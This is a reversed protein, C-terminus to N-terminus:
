LDSLGWFSDYIVSSGNMTFDIIEYNPNNKFISYGLGVKGFNNNIKFNIVELFTPFLDYFNMYDREFQMNDDIYFQNFIYRDKKKLNKMLLHDGLVILKTNKLNLKKFDEIFSSLYISSCKVTDKITYNNVNILDLREKLCERNPYGDPAHSDLTMITMFFKKNENKLNKLIDLSAQLLINDHIGGDWKKKNHYAQKSTEYGLDTLEKLGYFNTYNHTELFKNTLSNEVDDSSIFYNYYDNEHLIDTLCTLKPLFTNIGKLNIVDFFSNKIKLLPIGCQTSVLSSLTYGTSPVQYFYKISKAERFKFLDIILNEGFVKKDSLTNEFSEAYVVVLNSTDQNYSVNPYEYNKDLFDLNSVEGPKHFFNTYKSYLIIIILIIFVYFFRVFIYFSIQFFFNIKFKYYNNKVKRLKEIIIDFSKDKKTKFFIIINRTYFLILSLIIPIIILWKIASKFINSDGDLFGFYVLKLNFIFQEYYILGFKKNLWLPLILFVFLIFFVILSFLKSKINM